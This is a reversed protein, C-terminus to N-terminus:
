EMVLHTLLDPFTGHETGSMACSLELASLSGCFAVAAKTVSLVHHQAQKADVFNEALHPM